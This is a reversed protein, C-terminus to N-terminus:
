GSKTSRDANLSELHDALTEYDRALRLLTLRNEAQMEEASSRIEEALLRYRIARKARNDPM